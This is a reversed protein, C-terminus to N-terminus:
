GDYYTETLREAVDNLEDDTLEHPPDCYQKDIVLEPGVNTDWETQGEFHCDIEGDCGERPCGVSRSM